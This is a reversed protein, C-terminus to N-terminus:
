TMHEHTSPCVISTPCNQAPPFSPSFAHKTHSSIGQLLGAILKKCGLESVIKLFFDGLYELTYICVKVERFIIM